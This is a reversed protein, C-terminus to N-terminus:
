PGCQVAGQHAVHQHVGGCGMGEAAAVIQAGPGQQGVDAAKGGASQLDTLGPHYRPLPQRLNNQSTQPCPQPLATPAGARSKSGLMQLREGLARCTLGTLGPRPGSRRSKLRLWRMQACSDAAATAHSSSGQLEAHAAQRGMRHINVIGSSAPTLARAPKGRIGRTIGEESSIATAISAHAAQARASQLDVLTSFLSM